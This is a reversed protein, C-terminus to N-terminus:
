RKGILNGIPLARPAASLAERMARYKDMDCGFYYNLRATRGASRWRVDVSIQDTAVMKCQPASTLIREGRPRYPQLAARFKAFQAPTARFSQKGQVATHSGGEFVGRGDSSLTVKYAPCFGFCPTTEYTITEVPARAVAADFAPVAALAIAAVALVKM